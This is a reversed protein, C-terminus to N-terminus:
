FRQQLLKVAEGVSAATPLAALLGRWHARDLAWAHMFDVCLQPTILRNVNRAAHLSAQMQARSSLGPRRRLQRLVADIRKRRRKLSRAWFEADATSFLKGAARLRYLGEALCDGLEERRARDPDGFPDYDHQFASGTVAIRTTDHLFFWDECYVDPFHEELRDVAAVLIGGSLFAPMSVGTQRAAHGVVSHDPYGDNHLGVADFMNTELLGAAARVDADAAVTIDDDLFLVHRWGLMRSLLLGLNRKGSLDSAYTFQRDQLLRTTKWAPLARADLKAVDVATTRCGLDAGLSAVEEAQSLKSCLALMRCGLRAALATTARLRQSPRATPVIIADLDGAPATQADVRPILPRMTAMM